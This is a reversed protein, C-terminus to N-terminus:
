KGYFKNYEDQFVSATFEFVKNKSEDSMSFLAQIVEDIGRMRANVIDATGLDFKSLLRDNLKKIQKSSNNLVSKIDQKYYSPKELCIKDFRAEALTLLVDLQMFDIESQTLERKVTAM